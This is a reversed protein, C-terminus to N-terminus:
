FDTDIMLKRCREFVGAHYQLFEFEIRDM